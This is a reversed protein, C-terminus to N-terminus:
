VSVVDGAQADYIKLIVNSARNLDYVIATESNFLNPYNEINKKFGM